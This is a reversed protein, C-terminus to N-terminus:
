SRCAASASSRRSIVSRPLQDARCRDQVACESRARRRPVGAAAGTRGARAAAVEVLDVRRRHHQHGRSAAGRLRHRETTGFRTARFRSSSRRRRCIASRSARRPCIRMSRVCCSPPRLRPFPSSSPVRAFRHSARSTFRSVTERMSATHRELRMAGIGESRGEDTRRDAGRPRKSVIPVSWRRQGPSTRPSVGQHRQRSQGRGRCAESVARADFAARRRRCPHRRAAARRHLHRGRARVPTARIRRDVRRRTNPARPIVLEAAMRFKAKLGFLTSTFLPKLRTPFGLM